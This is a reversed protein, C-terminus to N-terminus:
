FIFCLFGVDDMRKQFVGQLLHTRIEAYDEEVELMMDENGDCNSKLYKITQLIKQGFTKILVKQLLALMESSHEENSDGDKHQIHRRV